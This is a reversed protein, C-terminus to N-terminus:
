MMNFQRGQVSQAKRLKELVNLLTHWLKSNSFSLLSLRPRLNSEHCLMKYRVTWPRGSSVLMVRWKMRNERTDRLSRDKLQKKQNGNGKRRDVQTMTWSVRLPRLMVTSWCAKVATESQHLMSSISSFISWYWLIPVHLHSCPEGGLLHDNIVFGECSWMSSDMSSYPSKQTMPWKSFPLWM